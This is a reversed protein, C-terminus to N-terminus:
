ATLAKLLRMPEDSGCAAACHAAVILSSLRRFPWISDVARAQNFASGRLAEFQIAFEDNGSSVLVRKSFGFPYFATKDNLSFINQQVYEM